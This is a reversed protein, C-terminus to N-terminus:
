CLDAGKLIVFGYSMHQAVFRREAHAVSMSVQSVSMYLQSQSM